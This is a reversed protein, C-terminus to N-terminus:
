PNVESPDCHDTKALGMALRDWGAAVCVIVAIALVVRAASTLRHEGYASTVRGITTQLSM